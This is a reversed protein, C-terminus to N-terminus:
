EDILMPRFSADYYSVRRIEDAKKLDQLRRLVFDAKGRLGESKLREVFQLFLSLKLSHAGSEVAFDLARMVLGESLLSYVVDENSKLKKLMDLGLQYAPEYFLVLPDHPNGEERSSSGSNDHSALLGQTREQLRKTETSGLNVLIRALELTDALVHYQLLSHLMQTDKTMLMYKVLLTQQSPQQPIQNELLTRLFELITSIVYKPRIKTKTQVHVHIPQSPSKSLPHTSNNIMDKFIELMENQFVILEGSLVRNNPAFEMLVNNFNCQSFATNSHLRGMRLQQIFLAEVNRGAM